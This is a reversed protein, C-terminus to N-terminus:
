GGMGYRGRLSRWPPMNPRLVARFGRCYAASPDDYDHMDTEDYSWHWAGLLRDTTPNSALLEQANRAGRQAESRRTKSTPSM